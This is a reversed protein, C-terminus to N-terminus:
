KLIYSLVRMRVENSQACMIHYDIAITLEFQTRNLKCLSVSANEDSSNKNNKRLRQQGTVVM